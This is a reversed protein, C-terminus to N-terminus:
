WNGTGCEPLTNVAQHGAVFVTAAKLSPIATGWHLLSSLASPAPYWLMLHHKLPANPYTLDGIFRPPAHGRSRRLVPLLTTKQATERRWLTFANLKDVPSPVGKTSAASLNPISTTACRASAPYDPHDGVDVTSLTGLRGNSGLGFCVAQGDDLVACTHSIGASISEATHNAPLQVIGGSLPRGPHDGM